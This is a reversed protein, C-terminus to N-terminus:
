ILLLLNSICHFKKCKKNVKEEAENAKDQITENEAPLHRSVLYNHLKKSRERMNHVPFM